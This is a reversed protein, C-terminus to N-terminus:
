KKKLKDVDIKLLELKEKIESNDQEKNLIKDVDIEKVISDDDKTNKKKDINKLITSEEKDKETDKIIKEVDIELVKPTINKNDNEPKRKDLMDTLHKVEDDNINPKKTKPKEDERNVDKDIKKPEPSNIPTNPKDNIENDIEDDLEDSSPAMPNKPLNADFVSGREEELNRKETEYDLNVIDLVTKTSILGRQHLQQIFNMIMQNSSFDQKQWTIDPVILKKERQKIRYQHNVESKIPEYFEQIESIPRYVKNRIWSELRLRYSMYKQTAAEYSVQAGQYGEGNLMSQSIGLGHLLEKEIFDFETNLPLIKGSSGVYDTQLGYHYVLVFNPDEEAMLLTDRFNDLDQQDPMPEGPQGIKFIRLPTIHRNAIAHQAERLKDKYILSKFCRMMLPTGWVEYPSAKHAIHSVLVNDLAINKGMRVSRIVNEPLQSYVQSYPGRPGAAVIAKLEDDPILEITPEDALISSNINIYDPNLIVFREWTGDNSNLQGYPVVDGIKWYELGIDLLLKVIDLKDFALYDFFDKVYEDSCVNSFNSIPFETHLDLATAVIPEVRYFHRCWENRERRDRPLMMNSAEFLPHYFRPAGNRVNGVSGTAMKRRINKPLDEKNIIESMQRAGGNYQDAKKGQKIMKFETDLNETIFIGNKNDM